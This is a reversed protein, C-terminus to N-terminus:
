EKEHKYREQIHKKLTLTYLNRNKKLDKIVIMMNHFKNDKTFTLTEIFRADNKDCITWNDDYYVLASHNLKTYADLYSLTQVMEGNTSLFCESINQAILNASTENQNEINITHAKVFLQICVASSISFFLIVIMLEMLFLSAKSNHM